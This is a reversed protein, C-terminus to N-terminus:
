PHSQRTLQSTHLAENRRHNVQGPDTSGFACGRRTAGIESDYGTSTLGSSIVIL